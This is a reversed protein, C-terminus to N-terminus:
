RDRPGELLLAIRERIKDAAPAQPALRLYEQYAAIADAPQGLRDQSVALGLHVAALDPSLTRARQYEELAAQDSGRRHLAVALNHAIAAEAPALERAKRLSGICEDWRSLACQAQALLVRHTWREPAADTAAQLSAIADQTRGLQLQVRGLNARTDADGPRERARREYYGLSQQLDSGAVPAPIGAPEVFQPEIDGGARSAPPPGPRVQPAAPASSANSRGTYWLIGLALVFAGCLAAAALRLRRSDAARLAPDEAVLQARCRPCRTRAASIKAGCVPCKTVDRKM